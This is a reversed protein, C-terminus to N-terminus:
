AVKANGSVAKYWKFVFDTTADCIEKATIQKSKLYTEAQGQWSTLVEKQFAVVDYKFSVSDKGSPTTATGKKGGKSTKTPNQGKPNKNTGRPKNAEKERIALEVEQITPLKDVNTFNVLKFNKKIFDKNEYLRIYQSVSWQSIKSLNAERFATWKGEETRTKMSVLKEGLEISKVLNMRGLSLHLNVVQIIEAKTIPSLKVKGKPFAIVKDNSTSKSQAKTAVNTAM